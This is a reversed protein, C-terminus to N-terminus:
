QKKGLKTTLMKKVDDYRKASIGETNSSGAWQWFVAEKFDHLGRCAQVLEGIEDSQERTIFKTGAGNGDDDLDDGTVIGLAGCM